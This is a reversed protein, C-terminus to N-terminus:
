IRLNHFIVPIKMEKPNIRLKLNCNKHASGRYKGTIHCHDRVRIDKEGYKEDCIHCEKAQKFDQEDDDSMRLPKNFKGAIKQCYEYCSVVKYGYSCGTHKQYKNTRSKINEPTCGQVKETIAELDAYIVFPVQIQRHHTQFHLTNVKQPMRIAQEGNIVICNTKHRILVDKSSFRQLRHM